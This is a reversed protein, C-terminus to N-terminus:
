GVALIWFLFGLLSAETLHTIWAVTMSEPALADVFALTLCLGGLFCVWAEITIHELRSKV